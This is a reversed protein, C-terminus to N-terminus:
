IRLSMTHLYAQFNFELLTEVRFNGWGTESTFWMHQKHHFSCKVKQFSLCKGSMPTSYDNVGGHSASGFALGPRYTFALTRSGRCENDRLANKGFPVRKICAGAILISNWFHTNRQWCLVKMRWKGLKRGLEKCSDLYAEDLTM